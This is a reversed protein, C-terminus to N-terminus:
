CKSLFKNLLNNTQKNEFCFFGDKKAVGYNDVYNFVGDNVRAVIWRTKKNPDSCPFGPLIYNSNFIPTKPKSAKIFFGSEGMVPQRFNTKNKIRRALMEQCAHAYNIKKVPESTNCFGGLLVYRPNLLLTNRIQCAERNKVNDSKRSPSYSNYTFSTFEPEFCIGVALPITEVEPFWCISEIIGRFKSSYPIIDSCSESGTDPRAFLGLESSVEVAFPYIVRLNARRFRNFM